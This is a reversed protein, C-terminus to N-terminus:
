LGELRLLKLNYPKSSQRVFLSSSDEWSSYLFLSSKRLGQGSSCTFASSFQRKFRRLRLHTSPRNSPLLQYRAYGAISSNPWTFCTKHHWGLFDKSCSSPTTISCSPCLFASKNVSKFRKGHISGSKRLKLVSDSQDLQTLRTSAVHQLGSHDALSNIFLEQLRQCGNGKVKNLEGDRRQVSGHNPSHQLLWCGM